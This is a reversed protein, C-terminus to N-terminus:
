VEIVEFGFEKGVADIIHSFQWEGRLERTVKRVEREAAEKSLDSKVLAEIDTSDTDKILFTSTYLPENKYQGIDIIKHGLDSALDAIKEDLLRENEKDFKEEDVEIIIEIKKEVKM